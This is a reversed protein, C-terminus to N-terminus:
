PLTGASFAHWAIRKLDVGAGTRVFFGMGPAGTLIKNVTADQVTWVPVSNKTLTMVVNGSTSDYNAHYVDGDAPPGPDAGSVTTIGSTGLGQFDDLAGNWRVPEIGNTAIDWEYGKAVHATIDFGVLLEVEQTDPPSYGSDNRYTGQAFHKTTSFRDKLIALCDDFHVSGSTTTAYCTGPTGGESQCDQWDLGTTLGMTWIGGQSLPNETDPFTTSFDGLPANISGSVNAIDDAISYLDAYGGYYKGRRYM